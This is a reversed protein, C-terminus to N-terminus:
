AIQNAYPSEIPLVGIRSTSPSPKRLVDIVTLTASDNCHRPVPALSAGRHDVRELVGLEVGETLLKTTGTNAPVDLWLDEGEEREEDGM